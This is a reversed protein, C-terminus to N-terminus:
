LLEDNGSDSESAGDSTSDADGSAAPAAEAPEKKRIIRKPKFGQKKKYKSVYFVFNLYLFVVVFAAILRWDQILEIVVSFVDSFTM